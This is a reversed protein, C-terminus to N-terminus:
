LVPHQRLFAELSQLLLPFRPDQHLDARGTSLVDAWPGAVTSDGARLGPQWVALEGCCAARGTKETRYSQPARGCDVGTGGRM